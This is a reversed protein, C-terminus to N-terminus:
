WGAVVNVRDAKYKVREREGTGCDSSVKIKGVM